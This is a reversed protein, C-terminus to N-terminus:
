SCRGCCRPDARAAPLAGISIAPARGNGAGADDAAEHALAELRGARDLPRRGLRSFALLDDILRGM